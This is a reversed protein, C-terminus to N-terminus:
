GAAKSLTLSNQLKVLTRVAHGGVRWFGSGGGALGGFGCGLTEADARRQPFKFNEALDAGAAGGNDPLAIVFQEIPVDRDFLEEVLREIVLFASAFPE